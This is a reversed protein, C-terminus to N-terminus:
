EAGWMESNGQVVGWDWPTSSMSDRIPSATTIGECNACASQLQIKVMAGGADDREPACTTDATAESTGQSSDRGSCTELRKQTTSSMVALSISVIPPQVRLGEDMPISPPQDIKIDRLELVLEASQGKEMSQSGFIMKVDRAWLLSALLIVM